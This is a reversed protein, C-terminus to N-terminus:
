LEESELIQDVANSIDALIRITTPCKMYCKGYVPIMTKSVTYYLTKGVVTFVVPILFELEEGFYATIRWKGIGLIGGKELVYIYGYKRLDKVIRRKM